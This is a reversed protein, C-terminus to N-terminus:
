KRGKKPTKRIPADQKPLKMRVSDPIDKQLRATRESVERNAIDAPIASGRFSVKGQAHQHLILADIGPQQAERLTKLLFREQEATNGPIAGAPLHNREMRPPRTTAMDPKKGGRTPDSM